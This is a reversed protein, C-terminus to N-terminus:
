ISVIAPCLYAGGKADIINNISNFTLCTLYLGLKFDNYQHHLFIGHHLKKSVIAYQILTEVKIRYLLNNRYQKEGLSLVKKKHKKLLKEKAIRLREANRATRSAHTEHMESLLQMKKIGDWCHKIYPVKYSIWMNDDNKTTVNEFNEDWELELQDDSSIIDGTLGSDMYAWVDKFYLIEEDIVIEFTSKPFM